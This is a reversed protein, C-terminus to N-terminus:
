WDYTLSLCCALLFGSSGYRLFEGATIHLMWGGILSIYCSSHDLLLECATPHIWRAANTVPLWFSGNSAKEHIFRPYSVRNLPKWFVM